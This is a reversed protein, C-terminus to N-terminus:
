NVTVIRPVRGQTRCRIEISARVDGSVAAEFVKRVIVKVLESYEEACLPGALFERLEQALFTDKPRGAPNGSVGKPWPRLNELCKQRIGTNRDHSLITPNPLEPIRAESSIGEPRRLVRRRAPRRYFPLVRVNQNIATAM